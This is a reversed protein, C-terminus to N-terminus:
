TRRSKNQDDYHRRLFRVVDSQGGRWKLDEITEKKDPSKDPFHTELAEIVATPIPPFKDM